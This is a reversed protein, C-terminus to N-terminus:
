ATEEPTNLFYQRVAAMCEKLKLYVAEKHEETKDKEWRSYESHLQFLTYDMWARDPEFAMDMRVLPNHPERNTLGEPGEEEIIRGIDQVFKYNPGTYKAMKEGKYQISIPRMCYTCGSLREPSVRTGGLHNGCDTNWLEIDGHLYWLQWVCVEANPDM